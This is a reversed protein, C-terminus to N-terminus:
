YSFHKQGEAGFVGITGNLIVRGLKKRMEGFKAHGHKHLITPPCVFLIISSSGIAFLGASFSSLLVM